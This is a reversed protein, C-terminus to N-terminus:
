RVISERMQIRTGVDYRHHHFVRIRSIGHRRCKEKHTTYVAFCLFSTSTLQHLFDSKAGVQCGGGVLPPLRSSDWPVVANLQTSNLHTSNLRTPFTLTANVSEWALVSNSDTHPRDHATEQSHWMEAGAEAGSGPSRDMRMNPSGFNNTGRPTRYIEVSVSESNSQTTNARHNNNACLASQKWLPRVSVSM